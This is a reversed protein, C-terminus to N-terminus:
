VVVAESTLRGYHYLSFTHFIQDRPRLLSTALDLDSTEFELEEAICFIPDTPLFTHTRPRSTESLNINLAKLTQLTSLRRLAIDDIPIDLVFKELTEQNCIARSLAHITTETASWHASFHFEVSKLKRCLLPYIDFFSLLTAEDAGALNVTLSVLTPSLLKQIFIIPMHTPGYPNWRLVILNPLLFSPRMSTCQFFRVSTSESITLERIPHSYRDIIALQSSTPPM